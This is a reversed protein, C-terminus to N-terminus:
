RNTQQESVVTDETWYKITEDTMNTSLALKFNSPRIAVHKAFRLPQKQVQLFSYRLAQLRYQDVGWVLM